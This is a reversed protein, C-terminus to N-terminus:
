DYYSSRKLGQQGLFILLLAFGAVVLWRGTQSTVADVFLDLLGFGVAQGLAFLFLVFGILVLPQGGAQGSGQQPTGQQPTGQQPTGQQQGGATQESTTTNPDNQQSMHIEM